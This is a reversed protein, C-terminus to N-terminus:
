GCDVQVVAGGVILIIVGGALELQVLVRAQRDPRRAPLTALCSDVLVAPTHGRM